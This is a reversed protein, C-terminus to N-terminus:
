RSQNAIATVRIEVRMKPAGLAAVGVQTWIPARDGMRARFQEVMVRNHGDGISVDSEPVHYSNVSVVDRWTAGALELTREVNDFARVIEEELGTPFNFHDDWGGQGSIEVRDGIRLAQQYHMAALQTDGYGPTAFFEPKTM